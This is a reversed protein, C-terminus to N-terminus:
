ATLGRRGRRGAMGDQRGACLPNSIAGPDPVFRAFRLSLVGRGHACLLWVLGFGDGWLGGRLGFEVGQAGPDGGKVDGGPGLGPMAIQGGAQPQGGIGGALRNQGTGRALAAAKDQREGAAVGAAPGTQAQAQGRALEVDPRSISGCGAIALCLVATLVAILWGRPDNLSSRM